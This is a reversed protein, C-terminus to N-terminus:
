PNRRLMRELIAALDESCCSRSVAISGFCIDRLVKQKSDCYNNPIDFPLRRHTLEYFIVGLSWIDSAHCVCSCYITEYKSLIVEPAIYCLSGVISSHTNCAIKAIGFDVIKVLGQENVLINKPKLDRHIIGKEELHLLGLCLQFLWYLLLEESPELFYAEDLPRGKIYELYINFSSFSELSFGFCKITNPHDVVRLANVEDLM